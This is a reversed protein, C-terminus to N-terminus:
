WVPDVQRVEYLPVLVGLICSAVSVEGAAAEYTTLVPSRQISPLTLGKVM